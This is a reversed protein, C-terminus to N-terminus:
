SFCIVPKVIKSARMAQYAGAVEDLPLQRVGLREPDIGGEAVARLAAQTDDPGCSYSAVLTIDRFYLSPQDLPFPTGPELPTFMVVTGGPAVADIAHQLAVPTGPGCVVVDAGRGDTLERLRVLPDAAADLTAAGFGEALRRREALFDSAIVDVGRSRALAVHLLGMIGLGIVYLVDGERLAAVQRRLRAARRARGRRFRTRRPAAVYRRHERRPRSFIGGDRGSRSGDQALDRMARLRGAQMRSMGPLACSSPRLSSRGPRVDSGRSRVPGSRRGGRRNRGARSRLRVPSEQPYVLADFRGLLDRERGHEGASRRRPARPYRARRDPHRRHRLPRSCADHLSSTSSGAAATSNPSRTPSRMSDIGHPSCRRRTTFARRSCTM